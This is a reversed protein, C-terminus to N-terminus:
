SIELMLWLSWTAAAKSAGDWAKSKKALSMGRRWFSKRMEGGAVVWAKAESGLVDRPIVLGM